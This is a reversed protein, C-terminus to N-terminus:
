LQSKLQKERLVALALQYREIQEKNLAPIGRKERIYKWLQFENDLPARGFIQQFEQRYIKMRRQSM